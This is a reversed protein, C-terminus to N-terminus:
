NCQTALHHNRSESRKKESQSNKTEKSKRLILSLALTSAVCLILFIMTPTTSSAHHVWESIAADMMSLLKLPLSIIDSCKM